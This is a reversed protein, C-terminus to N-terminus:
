PCRENEETSKYTYDSVLDLFSRDKNNRISEVMRSVEESVIKADIKSLPGFTVQVYYGTGDKFEKHNFEIFAM